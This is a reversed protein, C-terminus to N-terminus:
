RCHLQATIWVVQTDKALFIFNTAPQHHHEGCVCPTSDICICGDSCCCGLVFAGARVATEPATSPCDNRLTCRDWRFVIELKQKISHQFEFLFSNTESLGGVQRFVSTLLIWQSEETEVATELVAVVAGPYWGFGIGTGFGLGFRPLCALGAPQCARVGPVNWCM